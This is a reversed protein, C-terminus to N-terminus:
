VFRPGWILNSEYNDKAGIVELHKPWKCLQVV